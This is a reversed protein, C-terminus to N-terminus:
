VVFSGYEKHYNTGDKVVYRKIEAIGMEYLYAHFLEPGLGNLIVKVKKYMESLGFMEIIRRSLASRKNSICTYIIVTGPTLTPNDFIESLQNAPIGYTDIDIVNFGSLDLSRIVRMNDATLNRGKGKEKEVGYYRDLEFSAWLRNEGGFLDLVKTKKLHATAQRRLDIKKGIQTNDTSRAKM